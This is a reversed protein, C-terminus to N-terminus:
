KVKTKPPRENSTIRRVQGGGAYTTYEGSRAHVRFVNAGGVPFPFGTLQSMYLAGDPGAVVGTPVANMDINDGPFPPPTSVNPFLSLVEVEGDRSVSLLTNGGADAVYFHGGPRALVDVPNSDVLANGVEEDPNNENEFAWLDAIESVRGHKRVELLKGYLASVPDEAVLTPDREIQPRRCPHEPEIRVEM